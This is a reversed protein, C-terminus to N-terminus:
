PKAEARKREARWSILERLGDKFDMTATFGLRNKTLETSGVRTTVFAQDAKEYAIPLTSGMLELLLQALEELSTKVGTGVNFFGEPVDSAMAAINARAVDGVYVFDYSQTGDGYILPPLGADIRDLMKMIVAVYAGKYDQRPGYVNMYRLACFPLGYKHYYARCLHEGAIKTAGYVTNNNYPHAETMPMSLADGYVSSSSSFILRKVRQRVCAELVNVTGTVNVDYGARPFEQCQLLWLAALHFVGDAGTLAAELHDTRCIDGGKEYLSVRPDQLAAKLNDHKGRSLNDYVLVSAVDESLLAEVIHSGILGAGGIVVLRAGRLQM